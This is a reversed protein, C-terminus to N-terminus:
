SEILVIAGKFYVLHHHPGVLQEADFLSSAHFADQLSKM